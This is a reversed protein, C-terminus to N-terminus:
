NTKLKIYAFKIKAFNPCKGLNCVPVTPRLSGTQRHKLTNFISGANWGYIFHTAPQKQTYESTADNSYMRDLRSFVRRELRSFSSPSGNWTNFYFWKCQVEKTQQTANNCVNWFPLKVKTSFSKRLQQFQTM